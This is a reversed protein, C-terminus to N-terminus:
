PTAFFFRPVSDAREVQTMVSEQKNSRNMLGSAYCVVNKAGGGGGCWFKLLVKKGTSRYSYSCINEKKEQNHQLIETLIFHLCKM